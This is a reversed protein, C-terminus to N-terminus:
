ATLSPTAAHRNRPRSTSGPTPQRPVLERRARQLLADLRDNVVDPRELMLMHGGGPVDVFEATSVAAAIAASHHPPTVWDLTGCMILTPTRSLTRYAATGDFDSISDLLGALIPLQPANILAALTPAKKTVLRWLPQTARVASIRLAEASAPIRAAM